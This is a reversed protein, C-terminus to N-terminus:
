SRRRRSNNAAPGSAATAAAGACILGLAAPLLWFPRAVLATM